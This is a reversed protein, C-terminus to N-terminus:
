FTWLYLDVTEFSEHICQQAVFYLAAYNMRNGSGNWFNTKKGFPHFVHLWHGWFHQGWQNLFLLRRNHDHCSLFPGEMWGGGDLTGIFEAPLRSWTPRWRLVGANSGHDSGIQVRYALFAVNSRRDGFYPKICHGLNIM